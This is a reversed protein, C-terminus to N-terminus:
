SPIAAYANLSCPSATTSRSDRRFRTDPARSAVGVLHPRYSAALVILQYDGKALGNDIASRLFLPLVLSLALQLLHGSFTYAALRPQDAIYGLLRRLTHMASVTRARDVHLLGSRALGM